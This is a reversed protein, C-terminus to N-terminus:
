PRRGDARWFLRLTPRKTPDRRDSVVQLMEANGHELPPMEGFGVVFGGRWDGNHVLSEHFTEELTVFVGDVLMETEVQFFEVACEADDAHDAVGLERAISEAFGRSGHKVNGGRLEHFVVVRQHGRKFRAGM